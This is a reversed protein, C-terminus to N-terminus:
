MQTDFLALLANWARPDDSDGLMRIAAKRIKVSPHTRSTEIIRNLGRNDPLDELARLASMQLSLEDKSLLTQSALENVERAALNALTELAEGRIKRSPHNKFTEILLPVGARKKLSGLVDLCEDQVDESRDNQLTARLLSLAETEPLHALFEVAEERIDENPHRKLVDKIVAISSQPDRPHLLSELAEDQIDEDPDEFLLRNLAQTAEVESRYGLSEVAELRVAEGYSEGTCALLTELSGPVTLYGISEVAEEAFEGAPNARIQDQLLKLSQPHNLEGLANIAALRIDDPEGNSLREKFFDLVTEPRPAQLTLSRLLLKRARPNELDPYLSILLATSNDVSTEGLWILGNGLSEFPLDTTMCVLSDPIGRQRAAPSFGFLVAVGKEVLPHGGKKGSSFNGLARRVENKLLSDQSVAPIPTSVMEELSSQNGYVIGSIRMHHGNRSLFFENDPMQRRVFYGVWNYGKERAQGVAASWRTPLEGQGQYRIVAKPTAASLAAPTLTSLAMILLAGTKLIGAM